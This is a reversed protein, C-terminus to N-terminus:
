TIIKDLEFLLEEEDFGQLDAEGLYTLIAERPSMGVHLSSRKEETKVRKLQFFEISKVGSEELIGKTKGTDFSEDVVNIRVRSDAPIDKPINDSNCVIFMPQEVNISKMKVKKGDVMLHIFRRKKITDICADSWNNQIISGVFEINDGIMQPTHYHGLITYKFKKFSSRDLGDQLQIGYHEAGMVGIHGLCLDADSGALGEEFKKLDVSYPALLVRLGGGITTTEFSKVIRTYDLYKFVEISSIDPTIIDHNGLLMIIPVSNVTFSRLVSAVKILTEFHIKGEEKGKAHFFDGLFFVTANVSKAYTLVNSLISIALDQNKNTLHLDSFVIYNNM